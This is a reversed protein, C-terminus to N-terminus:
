KNNRALYENLRSWPYSLWILVKTLKDTVTICSCYSDHIEDQTKKIEDQINFTARLPTPKFYCITIGLIRFDCTPKYKGWLFINMLQTFNNRMWKIGASALIECFLSRDRRKICRLLRFFSGFVAFWYSTMSSRWFTAEHWFIGGLTEKCFSSLSCCTQRM